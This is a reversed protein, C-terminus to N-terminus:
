SLVEKGEEESPRRTEEPDEGKEPRKEYPKYADLLLQRREELHMSMVKDWEVEDVTDEKKVQNGSFIQNLNNWDKNDMTYEKKTM